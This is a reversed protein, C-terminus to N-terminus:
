AIEITKVTPIAEEKKALTVTLVGKDYVASVAEQNVTKPLKFTREFSNTWFERRSYRTNSQNEAVERKGSIKLLDQEIKLSFDNKEFGPAALELLFVTDTESVNLLPAGAPMDNGLFQGLNRNFFEDNFHPKGFTAPRFKILTNMNTHKNSNLTQHNAFPPFRRNGTSKKGFVANGAQIM